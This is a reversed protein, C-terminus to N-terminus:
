PTLPTPSVEITGGIAVMALATDFATPTRMVWTGIDGGRMRLAMSSARLAQCPVFDVEPSPETRCRASGRGNPDFGFGDALQEAFEFLLVGAHGGVDRAADGHGDVSLYEPVAPALLQRRARLDIQQRSNLATSAEGVRRSGM